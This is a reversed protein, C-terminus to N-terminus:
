KGTIFSQFINESNTKLSIIVTGNIFDTSVTVTALTTFDKLKGNTKFVTVPQSFM